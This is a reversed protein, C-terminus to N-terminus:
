NETHLFGHSVHPADYAVLVSVAGHGRPAGDAVEVSGESGSVLLEWAVLLLPESTQGPLEHHEGGNM